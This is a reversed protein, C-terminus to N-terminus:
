GQRCVLFQENTLGQCREQFRPNGGCDYAIWNRRAQASLVEAQNEGDEEKNGGCLKASHKRDRFGM